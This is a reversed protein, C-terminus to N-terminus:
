ELRAKELKIPIDKKIPPLSDNLKVYEFEINKIRARIEKLTDHKLLFGNLRLIMKGSDLGVQLEAKTDLHTTALKYSVTDLTSDEYMAILEVSPNKVKSGKLFQYDASLKYGEADNITDVNIEFPIQRDFTDRMSVFYNKKDRWVNRAEKEKRIREEEEEIEKVKREWKAERETLLGIAEDYVEQYIEPRSLYWNVVTDFKEKTLNHKELAFRYYSNALSDAGRRGSRVQNITAETYHVDALIQAFEKKDPFDKPIKNQNCGAILLGIALILIKIKNTSQM